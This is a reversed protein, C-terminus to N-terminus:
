YMLNLLNLFEIRFGHASRGNPNVNSVFRLKTWAEAFWKDYDNLEHKSAPPRLYDVDRVVAGRSRLIGRVCQDINQTVMVVFPNRSKTDLHSKHLVLVGPLYRTDTLLHVYAWKTSSTLTRSPM